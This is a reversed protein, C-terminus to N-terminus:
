RRRPALLVSTGFIAAETLLNLSCDTLVTDRGAPGATRM